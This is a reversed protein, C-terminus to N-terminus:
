RVRLLEGGLRHVCIMQGNAFQHRRNPGQLRGAFRGVLQHGLQVVLNGPRQRRHQHRQQACDGAEAHGFVLVTGTRQELRRVMQSIAPQSSGLANAAATFSGHDAIAALGRMQDPSITGYPIAVRLMYAHLQLYVGNMLRLPKFEDETLAGSARRAVQDSFEEVRERVLAHDFEDYRYM